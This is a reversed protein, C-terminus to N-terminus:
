RAPVSVQKQLWVVGSRKVFGCVDTKSQIVPPQCYSRRNGAGDGGRCLLVREWDWRGGYERETLKPKIKITM